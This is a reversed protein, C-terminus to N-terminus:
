WVLTDTPSAEQSPCVHTLSYWNGMSCRLPDQTKRTKGGAAELDILSEPEGWACEKCIMGSPMTSVEHGDINIAM